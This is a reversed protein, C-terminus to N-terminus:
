NLVYQYRELVMQWRGPGINVLAVLRMEDKWSIRGQMSWAASGVDAAAYAAVFRNFHQVIEAALTAMNETISHLVPEYQLTTTPWVIKLRQAGQLRPFPVEEPCEMVSKLADRSKCDRFFIGPRSAGAYRFEIRRFAVPSLTARWDETLQVDLKPEPAGAGVSPILPLDFYAM